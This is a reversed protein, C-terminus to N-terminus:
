PVVTVPVTAGRVMTESASGLIAREVRGAGHHGIVIHDIEEDAAYTLLEKAAAHASRVPMESVELLELDADVAMDAVVERAEDLVAETAGTEADSVHVAHLTADFNVAFETAFSLARMSNDSGDIAALVHDM